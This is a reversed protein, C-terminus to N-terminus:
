DVSKTRGPRRERASRRTKGQRLRLRRQRSRIPCIKKTVAGLAFQTTLAERLSLQTETKPLTVTEDGSFKYAKLVADVLQATNRPFVGLSDGSKYVLGSGTLDIELHVTEKQSEPANARCRVKLKAPFPNNKDYACPTPDSM